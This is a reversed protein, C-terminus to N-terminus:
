TQRGHRWQLLAERVLPAPLFEQEIRCLPLRHLEGYFEVEDQTLTDPADTTARVPEVVALSSAFQAFVARGMLVSQVHSQHRRAQALMQLGWTDIDGWYGICHRQWCPSALWALNLGAGLIAVTEPLEPLAHACEENEVILVHTGPLGCAALERARVRQQAFSLLSRDLPMVLLWHDGEDLAGLFGELGLNAVQGDFREDLLAAILARHREFFKSDIGALSVARLPRGAACGASLAMSLAAARIVDDDTRDIWLHRQRILLRRFIPDVCSILHELRRFEERIRADFTAEIWVSPRDLRWAVPLEVATALGRYSTPEWSVQGVQVNRWRQVHDRVDPLQRQISSPSPLGIPRVLPWAEPHLLRLERLDASHWERILREAIQQPSKM